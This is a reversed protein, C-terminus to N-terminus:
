NRMQHVTVLVESRLNFSSEKTFKLSTVIAAQLWRRRHYTKKETRESALSAYLQIHLIHIYNEKRLRVNKDNNWLSFRM